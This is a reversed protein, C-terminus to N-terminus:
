AQTTQNPDLFLYHWQTSMMLTEMTPINELLMHKNQPCAAPTLALAGVPPSRTPDGLNVSPADPGGSAMLSAMFIEM